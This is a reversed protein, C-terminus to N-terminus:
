NVAAYCMSYKNEYKSKLDRCVVHVLKKLKYNSQVKINIASIRVKIGFQIM